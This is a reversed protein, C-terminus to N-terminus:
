KEASVLWQLAEDANEFIRANVKQIRALNEAFKLGRKSHEKNLDIYAVRLRIHRAKRYNKMIVEFIDFTDLGPGTLNEEILIVNCSRKVCERFVEGIYGMVNQLTNQGEVKFHLYSNKWEVTLRYGKSLSM